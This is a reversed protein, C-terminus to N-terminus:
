AKCNLKLNVLIIRYFNYSLFFLHFFSVEEKKMEKQGGGGRTQAEIENIIKDTEEDSEVDIGDEDM